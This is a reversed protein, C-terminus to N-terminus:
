DKSEPNRWAGGSDVFKKVSELDSRVHSRAIAERLFAPVPFKPKVVSGYRGLTGGGEYPYFRWFGALEKIDSRFTADLTWHFYLGAPDFEQIMRYVVTRGMIRVTLELCNERDEQWVIRASKVEPVYRVQLGTDSLLQWVEEPSRDFVLAAEILSTGGSTKVAEDPLVVKGSALDERQAATLGALGDPGLDPVKDQARGRCPFWLLGFCLALGITKNIAMKMKM